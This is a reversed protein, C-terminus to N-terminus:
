KKLLTKIVNNNTNLNPNTLDIKTLKLPSVKLPDLDVNNNEGSSKSCFCGM